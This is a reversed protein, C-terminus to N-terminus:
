NKLIQNSKFHPCNKTGIQVIPAAWNNVTSDELGLYCLSGQWMPVVTWPVNCSQAKLCDVSCCGERDVLPLIWLPPFSRFRYKETDQHGTNGAQVSSQLDKDTKEHPLPLTRWRETNRELTTLHPTDRGCISKTISARSGNVTFSLKFYLIRSHRIWETACLQVSSTLRQHNWRPLLVCCHFQAQSCFWYIKVFGAAIVVSRLAGHSIHCRGLAILESLENSKYLINLLTLPTGLSYPGLTYVLKAIQM